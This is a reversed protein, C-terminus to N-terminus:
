VTVHLTAVRPPLTRKNLDSHFSSALRMQMDRSHIHRGDARKGVVACSSNPPYEAERGSSTSSGSSSTFTKWLDQKHLSKCEFSFQNKIPLQLDVPRASPSPRNHIALNSVSRLESQQGQIHPRRHEPPTRAASYPLCADFDGLHEDLASLTFM